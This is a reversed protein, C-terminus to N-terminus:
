GINLESSIQVGELLQGRGTLLLEDFLWTSQILRHKKRWSKARKLAEPALVTRRWTAMM